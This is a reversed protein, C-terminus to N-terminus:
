PFPKPKTKAIHTDFFLFLQIGFSVSIVSIGIENWLTLSITGIGLSSAKM